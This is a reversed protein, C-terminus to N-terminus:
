LQTKWINSNERSKLMNSRTISVFNTKPTFTNPDYINQPEYGVCKAIDLLDNETKIEPIYNRVIESDIERALEEAVHRALTEEADGVGYLIRLDQILEQSWQVRLKQPTIALKFDKEDLGKAFSWDLLIEKAEENSISFCVQLQDLVDSGWEDENITKNFFRKEIIQYNKNLFWIILQKKVARLAM